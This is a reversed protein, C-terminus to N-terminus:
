AKRQDLDQHGYGGRIPSPEFLPLPDAPAAKDFGASDTTQKPTASGPSPGPKEAAPLPPEGGRLIFIFKGGVARRTLIDHGAFRLEKIRASYRYIGADNLQRNTVGESGAETLMRLTIEKKSPKSVESAKRSPNDVSPVSPKRDKM